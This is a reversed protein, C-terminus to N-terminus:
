VATGHKTILTGKSLAVSKLFKIHPANLRDPDRYNKMREICERKIRPLVDVEPEVGADRLQNAKNRTQMKAKKLYM